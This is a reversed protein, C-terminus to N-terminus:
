VPSGTMNRFTYNDESMNESIRGQATLDRIYADNGSDTDGDSGIDVTYIVPVNFIVLSFVYILILVPIGISIAKGFHVMKKVVLPGPTRCKKKISLYQRILGGIEEM